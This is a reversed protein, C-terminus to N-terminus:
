KGESAFVLRAGDHWYWLPKKGVRDRALLLSRDREDWVAFAFMGDLRPIADTGWQEYAHLVAEADGNSTFRHGLGELERRLERFNDIEGSLTLRVQGDEGTIPQRGGTPDIIALRRFGLAVGDAEYSGEDDPGRHRLSEMMRNLLDAPPREGVVGCIGCM